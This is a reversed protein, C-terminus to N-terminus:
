NIHLKIKDDNLMKEKAKKVDEYLTKNSLVADIFIKDNYFTQGNLIDDCNKIQEAIFEMSHTMAIKNVFSKRQYVEYLIIGVSLILWICCLIIFIVM